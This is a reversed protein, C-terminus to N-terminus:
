IRVAFEECFPLSSASNSPTLLGPARELTNSKIITTTTTTTTTIDIAMPTIPPNSEFKFYIKDTNFRNDLLRDYKKFLFELFTSRENAVRKSMYKTDFIGGTFTMALVHLFGTITDPLVGIFSEYVYVMDMFGNHIVLHVGRENMIRIMEHWLKSLKSHKSSTSKRM